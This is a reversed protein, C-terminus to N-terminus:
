FCLCVFDKKAPDVPDYALFVVLSASSEGVGHQVNATWGRESLKSICFLVALIDTFVMEISFVHVFINMNAFM